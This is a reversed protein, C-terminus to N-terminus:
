IRFIVVCSTQHQGGRNAINGWVERPLEFGALRRRTKGKGIVTVGQKDDNDVTCHVSEAGTVAWTKFGPAVTRWNTEDINIIRERPTDRILERVREVFAQIQADNTTPRRTLRPRRLSMIHRKRFSAIFHPSCKFPPVVIPDTRGTALAEAEAEEILKQHFRLADVKFDSDSYYLGKELFSSMVETLLREEQVDTFIHKADSYAKRSPRWTPDDEIKAKWTRITSEPIKTWKSLKAISGYGVERQLIKFLWELDDLRDKHKKYGPRKYVTLNPLFELPLSTAWPKAVYSALLEHDFTAAPEM